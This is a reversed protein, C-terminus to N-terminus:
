VSRKKSCMHLIISDIFCSSHGLHEHLGVLAVIYSCKQM